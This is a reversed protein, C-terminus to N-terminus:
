SYNLSVCGSIRLMALFGMQVGKIPPETGWGGVWPGSPHINFYEGARGWLICRM